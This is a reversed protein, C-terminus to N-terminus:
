RSDVMRYEVATVRPKGKPDLVALAQGQFEDTVVDRETADYLSEDDTPTIDFGSLYQPKLMLESTHATPFLALTSGDALELAYVAPHAPEAAFYRETAYKKLDDDPGEEYVEVSDKSTETSAFTRAAKKRGGTEFFDEYHEDLQDPALAGVRKSPDAPTVLGQEDVAAKPIPAEDAYVAMTMRYTSGGARDFVLLAGEQDPDASSRAKVAFWTVGSDAAPILYERDTYRFASAYHKRDEKSWTEWQQYDARSQEHVQGTEVTSLLKEDREANARNNVREYTDVVKAAAEQTLLGRRAAETSRAPAGDGGRDADGGCATLTLAGTLGLALVTPRRLRSRRSTPRSM